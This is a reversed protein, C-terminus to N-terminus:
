SARWWRASELYDAYEIMERNLRRRSDAGDEHVSDNRLVDDMASSAANLAKILRRYRAERAKTARNM